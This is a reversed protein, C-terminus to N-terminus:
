EKERTVTIPTPSVHWNMALQMADQASAARFFKAVLNKDDSYRFECRWLPLQNM